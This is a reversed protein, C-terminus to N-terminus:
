VFDANQLNQRAESPSTGYWRRYARTFNAQESFGLLYAIESMSMQSDQIYENAIEQRVTNYLLSFSTKEESLKRQLTRSSMNLESAIRKETIKGTPMLEVLRSKVLLNVSQRDLVRLYKMAIDENVKALESNGTALRQEAHQRDFLAVLKDRNYVISTGVLKELEDGCFSRKKTLQIEVPSFNEGCLLRCMVLIAVISADSAAYHIYREDDSSRVELHLHVGHEELSASMSNNAIRTYRVLRTLADKLSHSALWAFGLAHFTTANWLKGVKIGFCPDETEEIAADWLNYMDSLRYRANGDGLKVPDLGVQKFISHSDCGNAQLAKWILLAWSTLTTSTTPM